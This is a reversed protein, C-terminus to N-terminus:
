NLYFIMRERNPDRAFRDTIQKLLAYKDRHERPPILALLLTFIVTCFANFDGREHPRIDRYIM